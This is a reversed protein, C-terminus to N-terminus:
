LNFNVVDLVEEPLNRKFIKLQALFRALHYDALKNQGESYVIMSIKRSITRLTVM